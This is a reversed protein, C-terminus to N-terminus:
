LAWAAAQEAQTKSSYLKPKVCNQIAEEPSLDSIGWGGNTDECWYGRRGLPPQGYEIVVAWRSGVKRTLAYVPDDM